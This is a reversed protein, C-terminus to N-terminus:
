APSPVSSTAGVFFRDRLATWVKAGVANVDANADIVVCREPEATAIEGDYPRAAYRERLPFALEDAKQRM